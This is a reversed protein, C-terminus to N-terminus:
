DVGTAVGVDIVDDNPVDCLNVVKEKEILVKAMQLLRGAEDVLNQALIYCRPHYIFIM